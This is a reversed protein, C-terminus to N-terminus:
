RKELRNDSRYVSLISARGKSPVKRLVQEVGLKNGIIQVFDVGM